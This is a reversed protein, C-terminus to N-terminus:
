EEKEEKKCFVFKEYFGYRYSIESTQKGTQVSKNHVSNKKNYIM